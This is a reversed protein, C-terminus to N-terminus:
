TAQVANVILDFDVIQGQAANNTLLNEFVIKVTFTKATDIKSMTQSSIVAQGGQALESLYGVSTGDVYVRMQEALANSVSTLNIVVDYTFAVSGVNSLKMTAEYTSTPVVLEGTEIGFVNENTTSTFNVVTDDTETTMYGTTNNLTKKSLYTRELRVQLTGAVLHNEVSVSDTFLAYTGGILMAMCLMIMMSAILLMRVRKRM